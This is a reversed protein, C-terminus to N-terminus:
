AFADRKAEPQLRGIRRANAHPRRIEFGRFPFGATEDGARAACRRWRRYGALDRRAFFSMALHQRIPMWFGQARQDEILLTREYPRDEPTESM